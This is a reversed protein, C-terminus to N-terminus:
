RNSSRTSSPRTRRRSWCGRSTACSGDALQHYVHAATAGHPDWVYDLAEADQRITARIEEDTVCGRRSAPRALRDPFLARLREMNSPNGVDMASALTPVSARPRWDGGDLFETVAPNANTALVIDGIPLGLERAWVGATVNGLNGSPM